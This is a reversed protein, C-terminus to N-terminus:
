IGAERGDKSGGLLAMLVGLNSGLTDLRAGMCALLFKFDIRTGM